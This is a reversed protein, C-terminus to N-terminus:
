ILIHVFEYVPTEDGGSVQQTQKASLTPPMDLKLFLFFLTKHIFMHIFLFTTGCLIIIIIICKEKKKNKKIESFLLVFTTKSM